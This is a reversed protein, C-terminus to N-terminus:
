TNQAIMNITFLLPPMRSGGQSECWRLTIRLKGIKTSIVIM